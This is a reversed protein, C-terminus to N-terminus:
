KDKEKNIENQIIQKEKELNVLIKNIKETSKDLLSKAKKLKYYSAALNSLNSIVLGIVVGLMLSTLDFSM